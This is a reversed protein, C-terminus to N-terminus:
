EVHIHKMIVSKAVLYYIMILVGCVVWIIPETLCVGLYGLRPVLLNIAVLKGVLELSSAVIPAIRHGIGQLVNRLMLLISLPFFLPAGIRLYMSGLDLIEKTNDNAVTQVLFPAFPVLICCVIASWSFSLILSAKTGQWVREMKQAGYNQGSFTATAAGFVALPMMSIELIKRAGTHASLVMEGLGNIGSQLIVSGMSVISLMMSMSLGTTLMKGILQRDFHFDAKSIHIEPCKKVIYIFCLIASVAQAMVTAASAGRIGYNLVKVFLIDLGINLIAAIVLFVLPMVSNGIAKLINAFMNYLMTFILGGLLISIYAYANPILSEPTHLFRFLPKIFVLSLITFIVTMILAITVTAAVTRRVEKEDEAGYYQATIISFGNTLGNIFSYILGTIAYTTGVSALANLGLKDSVIMLDVLNYLQQFINGLLIPVAFSIILKFPNGETMRNSTQFKKIM